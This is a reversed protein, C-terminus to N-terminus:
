KNVCNESMNCAFCFISIGSWSHCEYLCSSDQSKIILKSIHLHWIIIIAKSLSDTRLISGETRPYISNNIMIYFKCLWQELRTWAQGDSAQSNNDLWKIDASRFRHLHRGFFTRHSSIFYIYNTKKTMLQTKIHM